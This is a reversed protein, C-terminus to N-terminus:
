EGKADKLVAQVRKTFYKSWKLSDTMGEEAALILRHYRSAIGSCNMERLVKVDERHQKLKM